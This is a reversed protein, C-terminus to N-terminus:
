FTSRDNLRWERLPGWWSWGRSGDGEGGGARVEKHKQKAEKRKRAADKRRTKGSSSSSLDEVDVWEGESGVDRLRSPGAEPQAIVDRDGEPTDGILREDQTRDRAARLRTASQEHEKIGFRGLGWGLEEGEIVGAEARAASGRRSGVAPPTSSGTDGAFIQQRREARQLAQQRTADQHAHRLRRFYVQFFTTPFALLSAMSKPPHLSPTASTSSAESNTSQMVGRSVSGEGAGPEGNAEDSFEVARVGSGGPVRTPPNPNLRDMEIGEEEDNNAQSRATHRRILTTSRNRLIGAVSNFGAIVSVSTSGDQSANNNGNRLKAANIRQRAARKALKRKKKENKEM